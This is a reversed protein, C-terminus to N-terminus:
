LFYCAIAVTSCSCRAIDGERWLKRPPVVEPLPRKKSVCPSAWMQCAVHWTTSQDGITPNPSCCQTGDRGSHRRPPWPDLSGTFPGSLHHFLLLCVFSFYWFFLCVVVFLVFLYCSFLNIFIFLFLCLYHFPEVPNQEHLVVSCNVKKFIMEIPVRNQPCRLLEFSFPPFFRLFHPRTLDCLTIWLFKMCMSKQFKNLFIGFFIGMISRAFSYRKM